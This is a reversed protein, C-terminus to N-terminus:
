VKRWIDANARALTTSVNDLYSTSITTAAATEAALTAPLVADLRTKRLVDPDVTRMKALVLAQDVCSVLEDWLWQGHNGTRRESVALLLTNPPEANPADHHFSIGTTETENPVLEHWEDLVLANMPRTTDLVAPSQVVISVHDRPLAPDLAGPEAIWQAGGAPWQFIQLAPLADATVAAVVRLHQLKAADERVAAAAFLWDETREASPAALAAAAVDDTLVLRPLLPFHSGLLADVAEGLLRLPEAPPLAPPAWKAAASVIRARMLAACRLGQELLAPVGASFAPLAERINFQAAHMLAATLADADVVAASSLNALDSTAAEFEDQLAQVRALLEVSDIAERAQETRAHLRNPPVFDRQTAAKASQLMARWRAILPLMSGIARTGAPADAAPTASLNVEINAIAVGPHELLFRPHTPLRLRDGLEGIHADDLVRLLDVPELGLTDMPVSFPVRMGGDEPGAVYAVECVLLDLAGLQQSLWANLAPALRAHPTAPAPLAGDDNMALLVRQTTSTGSRPTQVVEFEDPVHLFEGAATVVGAARDFNGLAAQHVSEALMLDSAADLMDLLGAALAVVASRANPEHIFALTPGLTGDRFAQVLRLGNVVNQAATSEAPGVATDIVQPMPFADRLAPLHTQLTVDRERLGREFRYGLLAAPTQGNRVGEFLWLAHRVRASSLDINFAASDRQTASGSRLLAATTAQNLSPAQVLGLNDADRTVPRGSRPTLEPPLNAVLTPAADPRLNEVWGYAGLYIGTAYPALPRHNLDYRWLPGDQASEYMPHLRNGRDRERWARMGLLRQYAQGTIWADLRYSALDLHETFLRELSATSLLGLDSCALIVEDVDGFHTKWDAVRRRLDRRSKILELATAGPAAV